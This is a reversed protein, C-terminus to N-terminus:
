GYWSTFLYVPLLMISAVGLLFVGDVAMAFKRYWRTPYILYALWAGSTIM